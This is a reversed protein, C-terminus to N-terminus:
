SPPPMKFWRPKTFTALLTTESLTREDWAPPSARPAPMALTSLPESITVLLVTEPLETSEIPESVPPPPMELPMKGRPWPETLSTLLVTEPLETWPGSPPPPRNFPPNAVTILLVIEPLEAPPRMGDPRELPPMKLTPVAVTFFEM